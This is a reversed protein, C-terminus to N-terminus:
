MERDRVLKNRLFQEMSLRPLALGTAGSSNGAAERGGEGLRVGTAEDQLIRAAPQQHEVARIPDRQRAHGLGPVTPPNSAEQGYHPFLGPPHGLDRRPQLEVEPPNGPDRPPQLEVEHPNGPDRRPQLEVEHPNGPDRRPQLEVEHPNSPDRQAGVSPLAPLRRSDGQRDDPGPGGRSPNACSEFGQPGAAGEPGDMGQFIEAGRSPLGAQLLDHVIQKLELNESQLAQVHQDRRQLASQVQRRVEEQVTGESLMEGQQAPRDLLSTRRETWQVMAQRVDPDLVQEPSSPASLWTSQPSAIPTARRLNEM